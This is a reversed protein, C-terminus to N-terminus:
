ASNGSQLDKGKKCGESTVQSSAPTECPKTVSHIQEWVHLQHTLLDTSNTFGKGCMACIFPKEGTHGCKHKLLYSSSSFGKMCVSCTFSREGTHIRQHTRLNFSRNFGKGCVTCTFPRERTHSRQHIELQSPSHFEKGCHGCKWLKEITDIDKHTELNSSKVGTSKLYGGSASEAEGPCLVRGSALVPFACAGFETGAGASLQEVVATAGRM